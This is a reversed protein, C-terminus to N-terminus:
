GRSTFRLKASRLALADSYKSSFRLKPVHVLIALAIHVIFENAVSGVALCDGSVEVADRMIKVLAEALGTFPEIGDAVGQLVGIEENRSEDIADCDRLRGLEFAQQRDEALYGSAGADTEM